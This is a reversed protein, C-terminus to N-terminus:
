SSQGRYRDPSHQLSIFRFNSPFSKILELHNRVVSLSLYVQMFDVKCKFCVQFSEVEYNNLLTANTKIAPSNPTSQKDLREKQRLLAAMESYQPESQLEELFRSAELSFTLSQM